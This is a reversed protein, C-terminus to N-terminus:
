TNPRAEPSPTGGSSLSEAIWERVKAGDAVLHRTVEHREYCETVDGLAHGLYQKRRSRMIGAQEIWNGFTRRLDYPSCAIGTAISVTSLARAFSARSIAPPAIDHIGLAVCPFLRPIDRVRDKRKTGDIHVRDDLLTWRGWYEAPGMGTLAMALLEEGHSQAKGKWAREFAQALTMVDRPALPHRDRSTTDKRSEVDRVDLYLPNRRGLTDRVFASAYQLDLNFSRAGPMTLKLRRLADPLRAINDRPTVVTKLHTILEGRVEYTRKAVQSKTVERWREVAAILPPAAPGVSLVGDGSRIAAFLEKPPLAGSVLLRLQDRGSETEALTTIRDNLQQFDAERALGSARHIRGVGGIRRDLM